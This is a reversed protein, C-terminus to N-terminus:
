RWGFNEKESMANILSNEFVTVRTGVRTKEYILPQAKHFVRICGFSCRRRKRFKGVHMGVGDWTLRMWYPMETGLYVTGEPPPGEHLWNKEVAVKGTEADVYKGYTDSRKQKKKELVRHEGTPTEKGPVGTAIDTKLVVRGQGDLLCAKQDWLSVQVATRSADAQDYLKKNVRWSPAEGGIVQCSVIFFSLLIMVGRLTNKALKGVRM